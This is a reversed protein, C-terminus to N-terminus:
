QPKIYKSFKALKPNDILDQHIKEVNNNYYPIEVQKRYLERLSNWLKFPIYKPRMDNSYFNCCLVKNLIKWIKETM